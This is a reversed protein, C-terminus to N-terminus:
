VDIVKGTQRFLKLGEKFEEDIEALKNELKLVKEKDKHRWFFDILDELIRKSVDAKERLKKLNEIYAPKSDFFTICDDKNFKDAYDWVTEVTNWDVEKSM